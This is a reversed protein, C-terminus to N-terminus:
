RFTGDLEQLKTMVMDVEAAARGTTVTRLESVPCGDPEVEIGAM